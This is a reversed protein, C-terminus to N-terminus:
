SAQGFELWHVEDDPKQPDGLPQHHTQIGILVNLDKINKGEGKLLKLTDKHLPIVAGVELHNQCNACEQLNWRSLVPVRSIEVSKGEKDDVYVRMVFSGPINSRNVGPVHLMKSIPEQPEGLFGDNKKTLSGHGYTYGLQNEVDTV